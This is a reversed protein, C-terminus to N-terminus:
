RPRHENEFDLQEIDNFLLLTLASSPAPLGSQLLDARIIRCDLFPM